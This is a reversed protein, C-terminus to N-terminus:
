FAEDMCIKSGLISSERPPLACLRGGKEFDIRFFIRGKVRKDKSNRSRAEAQETRSLWWWGPVAARYRITTFTLGEAPEESLFAM